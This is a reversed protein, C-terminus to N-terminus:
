DPGEDKARAECQAKILLIEVEHSACLRYWRAEDMGAPRWATLTVYCQSPALDCTDAAVVRASIRPVMREPPGLLYDVILREPDAMVRFFGEGGDFLSRGSHLDGKGTPHTDFCGLSWRGLAVPDRLFDFATRAPVDLLVTVSHSLAASPNM